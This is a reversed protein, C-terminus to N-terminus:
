ATRRSLSLVEDIQRVVELEVGRRGPSPTVIIRAILKRLRPGALARTTEDALERHLEEIAQQYQRALAPHLAIQPLAEASALAREIDAKEAKSHALADRIERFEGGGDAIASVLREIKRNADALQRELRNNEVALERSRRSYESRYEELYAAVVDPALMKERLDDLVRREYESCTILRRNSCDIGAAIGGCGFYNDRIKIWKRGCLGCEGLGSLLHKPRRQREPRGHSRAALQDQAKQWLADDIIRLHPAEGTAINGDGPRSSRRRTRPDVVIKSRGYRLEGIYIPNGLIGFGQKHHGHISSVNWIGGRPGPIGERNLRVAISHPSHGEVYEAFIRKVIEATVPNIERLGRIPEGNSDLKVVRSYGYAVGSPSRGEAVNGRHGRKIRQALDKRTRADFLGKITGTIDDVVGDFLTFLRAGHHEIQERVNFADGQHRAIRDTSETLVQDIGGAEIRALMAALGPRQHDDIGAAGSIARDHYCEVVIWGEQEARQRCAAIQDEISRPNQLQSSYRAYILTRM